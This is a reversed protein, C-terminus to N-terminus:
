QVPQPAQQPQQPTTVQQIFPMLFQAYKANLEATKGNAHATDIEKLFEEFTMDFLDKPKDAVNFQNHMYEITLAQMQEARRIATFMAEAMPGHQIM